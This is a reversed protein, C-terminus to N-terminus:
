VLSNQSIENSKWGMNVICSKKTNDDYIQSGALSYMIYVVFKHSIVKKKNAHKKPTGTTWYENLSFKCEMIFKYQFSILYDYIYM